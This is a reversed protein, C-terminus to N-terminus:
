RGRDVRIHRASDGFRRGRFRARLRNLAKMAAAVDVRAAQELIERAESEVSHGHERARRKLGVIAAPAIKRILLQAV